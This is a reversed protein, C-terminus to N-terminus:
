RLFAPAEPDDNIVVVTAYREPDAEALYLQQGPVYRTAYRAQVAGAGGLRPADRVTARAVTVAFDARVFISVDWLHRLEPRLLFVGEPSEKGRRYRVDAPNLFDDVTLRRVIRGPRELLPVLEDALTTKGSADVGDVAVRIARDEAAALIRSALGDLLASRLM